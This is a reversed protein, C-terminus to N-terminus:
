RVGHGRRHFPHRSLTAVARVLVWGLAGVAGALVVILVATFVVELGNM